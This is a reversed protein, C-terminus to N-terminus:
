VKTWLVRWFGYKLRYSKIKYIYERKSHPVGWTAIYMKLYIEFFLLHMTSQMLSNKDWGVIWLKGTVTMLQQVPQVMM